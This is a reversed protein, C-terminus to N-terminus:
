MVFFVAYSWMCRADEFNVEDLLLAQFAGGLYERIKGYLPGNELTGGARYKRYGCNKKCVSM